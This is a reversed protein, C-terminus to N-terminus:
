RHIRPRTSDDEDLNWISFVEMDGFMKKSLSLWSNTRTRMITPRTTQRHPRHVPNDQCDVQSTTESATSADKGEHPPPPPLFPPVTTSDRPPPPPMFPPLGMSEVTSRNTLDFSSASQSSISLKGTSDRSHCEDGSAETSTTNSKM